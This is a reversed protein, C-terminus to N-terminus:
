TLEPVEHAYRSIWEMAATDEDLDRGQQRQTRRYADILCLQAALRARCADADDLLRAAILWAGGEAECWVVRVTLEEAGRPTDLSVHITNGPAVHTPTVFCIGGSTEGDGGRDSCPQQRVRVGNPYRIFSKVCQPQM